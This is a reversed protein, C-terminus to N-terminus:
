AERTCNYSGYIHANLYRGVSEGNASVNVIEDFVFTPVASYNYVRGNLYNVTLVQTEANYAVSAIHSSNVNITKM